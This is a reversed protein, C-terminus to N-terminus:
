AQSVVPPKRGHGTMAVTDNNSWWGAARLREARAQSGRLGNCSRCAPVLNEIRNDLGDDNLHDPELSDPHGKPLWDVPRQCWHCPHPGPGIADYLVVRHEYARGCPMSLPHDSLTVMRYTVPAPRTTGRAVKDVSGHRYWRHYHKKCLAASGSRPENGCGEVECTRM